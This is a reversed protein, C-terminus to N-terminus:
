QKSAQQEDELMSYQLRGAQDQSRRSIDFDYEKAGKLNYSHL